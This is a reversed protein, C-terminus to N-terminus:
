QSLARTCKLCVCVVSRCLLSFFDASTTSNEFIVKTWGAAHGPVDIEFIVEVGRDHAYETLAFIDQQSYVMTPSFAGDTMTPESPTQAASIYYM